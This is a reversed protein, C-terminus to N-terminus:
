THPPGTPWISYVLLLQIRSTRFFVVICSTPEPVLCVAEARLEPLQLDFGPDAGHHPEPSWLSCARDRPGPPVDDAQTM